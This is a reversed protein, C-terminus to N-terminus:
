GSEGRGAGVEFGIHLARGPALAGTIDPYEAGLLNTADVYLWTRGLRIGGRLDLHHYPDEGKRRARQLSLGMNIADGLPRVVGVNLQEELPRLAYKSLFGRAEESDMSLLMGGVTWRTELPGTVKLEGEVGRTKAEEVNRTEWPSDPGAQVSRAWDILDKAKRTFVTLALQLDSGAAVDLGVEGSWAREPQLDDRGINVPDQYYRETWTPARFSRGLAARARLSM